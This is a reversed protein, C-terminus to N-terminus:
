APVDDDAISNTPELRRDRPLAPAKASRPPAQCGCDEHPLHTVATVSGTSTDIHTSVGAQSRDGDLRELVLRVAELATQWAALETETPASRGVLQSALVPWAPDADTHVLDLCRLCASFGPEILPGIRISRDGFIIPLHPVDRSLWSSYRDPEIAYQGVLVAITARRRSRTASDVVTVGFCRLMLRIREATPGIGDVVVRSLAAPPAIAQHEALLAPHVSAIFCDLETEVAGAERGILRLGSEPIGVALAALMREVASTTQDLVCVPEDVGLQLSTPSRWVVPVRPDLRLIM